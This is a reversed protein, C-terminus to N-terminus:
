KLLTMRKVLVQNAFEIRYFYVGSAATNGQANKGDWIVTHYGAAKEEDVLKIVKQGLINYVTITVKGDTPLAYKITTTANFPNPYSSELNLESPSNVGEASSTIAGGICNKLDLGDPDSDVTDSGIVTRFDYHVTPKGAASTGVVSGTNYKVGIVFVQGASTCNITVSVQGSSTVTGTGIKNCNADYLRIESTDNHVEFFPFTTNNKKQVIKVTLNGSGPCTVKTYYFFVGPATNNVVGKKIGYCALTLDGATGGIFDSCTTATPAIKGGCSERFINQCCTDSYNGCDDQATWCRKYTTGGVGPITDTSVIIISPNLDCNDKADPSDFVVAADCAINKDPKCSITPKTTDQIVITQVCTDANKCDDVAIWTRTITSEQPCDGPTVKDTYTPIVELDCNDTATATGFAGINDCDFTKNSPCTIVPDTTDQIVITQVCTDANKCDDV